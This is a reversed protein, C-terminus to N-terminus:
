LSFPSTCPPFSGDDPVDGYLEEAETEVSDSSSTRTLAVSTSWTKVSLMLFRKVLTRLKQAVGM